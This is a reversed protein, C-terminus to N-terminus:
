RQCNSQGNERMAFSPIPYDRCLQLNKPVLACAAQRLPANGPPDTREDAIPVDIPLKGFLYPEM